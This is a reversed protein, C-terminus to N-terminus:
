CTSLEKITAPISQIRKQAVVVRMNRMMLRVIPIYSELSRTPASHNIRGICCGWLRANVRLGCAAVVMLARAASGDEDAERKEAKDHIQNCGALNSLEHISHLVNLSRPKDSGADAHQEIEDETDGRIRDGDPEIGIRGHTDAVKDRDLGATDKKAVQRGHHHTGRGRLDVAEGFGALVHSLGSGRLERAEYDVL